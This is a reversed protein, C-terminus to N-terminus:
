SWVKGILSSSATPKAPTTQSMAPRSQPQRTNGAFHSERFNQWTLFRPSTPRDM